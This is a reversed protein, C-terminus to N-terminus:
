GSRGKKGGASWMPDGMRLTYFGSFWYPNALIQDLCPWGLEADNDVLWTLEKCNVFKCVGRVVVAHYDLQLQYNFYERIASAQDM